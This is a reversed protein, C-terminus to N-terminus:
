LTFFTKKKKYQRNLIKINKTETNCTFVWKQRVIVRNKIKHVYINIAQNLENVQWFTKLNNTAFLWQISFTTVPM